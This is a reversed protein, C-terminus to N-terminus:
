ANNIDVLESWFVIRKPPEIVEFMSSRLKFVFEHALYHALDSGYYITDSQHVSFIPNGSENPESPIYRHLYIPVLKPYRKFKEVVISKQEEFSQPKEGWADYWFYGGEISGLLGDLPWNLRDWIEEQAKKSKLTGRWDVFGSSTPVKVKLFNRWDEPFCFEFLREIEALEKESLGQDFTVDKKELKRILFLIQKEADM